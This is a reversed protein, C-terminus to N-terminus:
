RDDVGANGRAEAETAARIFAGVEEDSLDGLALRTVGELRSLDVLAESLEVNTEEGRDRFAAVVVIRAEPATRALRGLLHLTGSDAWHLDDVVLLLPQLRSLRMLFDVVARQLPYPDTGRGSADPGAIGPRRRRVRARPAVAPREM